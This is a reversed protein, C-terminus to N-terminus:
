CMLSIFPGDVKKQETTKFIGLAEYEAPASLIGLDKWVYASRRYPRPRVNSGVVESQAASEEAVDINVSASNLPLSSFAAPAQGADFAVIQSAMLNPYAPKTTSRPKTAIIEGDFRDPTLISKRLQM